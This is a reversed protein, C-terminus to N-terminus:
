QNFRLVKLQGDRGAILVFLEDHGDGYVDGASGLVISIRKHIPQGGLVSIQRMAYPARWPWAVWAADDALGGTLIGPLGRGGLDPMVSLAYGLGENPLAGETQWLRRLPRGKPGGALLEIRGRRDKWGLSGVLLAHTGNGLVDGAAALSYAFLEHDSEGEMQLGPRPGLGNKSGYYVSLRGVMPLAAAQTWAASHTDAQNLALDPNGAMWTLCSGNCNKSGIVLDDVGDGDLDGPGCLSYGFWDGPQAGQAQWDPNPGPGKPGGHYVYVKGRQQGYSYDAVALADFGDGYINGARAVREGFGGSKMPGLLEKWPRSQPGSPGTKFLYILGRGRGVLSSIYIEPFPDGDMHGASGVCYGANGGDQEDSRWVWNPQKSLGQASGFYAEAGGPVGVLLDAFGDGNLDVSSASYV